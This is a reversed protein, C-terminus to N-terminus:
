LYGANDTQFLDKWVIKFASISSNKGISIHLETACTYTNSGLADERCVGNKQIKWKESTKSM